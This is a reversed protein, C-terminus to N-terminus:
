SDDRRAREIVIPEVPVDGMAGMPTPRTGTRTGGIQEVVEMGAEVEGFVAYGWQNGRQDLQNNDALNIFFQATASHPAQTRAMAITGRVNNLGNDAENRIPDHTSQQVLDADFGGGQIMFGDIVRHFVLGDYHGEDVYRLFNEVTIPAAEAHLVLQIDGASTELIVRPGDAAPTSPAATTEPEDSGACAALLLVLPVALLALKSRPM